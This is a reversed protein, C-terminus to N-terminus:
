LLAFDFSMALNRHILSAVFNIKGKELSGKSIKQTEITIWNLISKPIKSIAQPM